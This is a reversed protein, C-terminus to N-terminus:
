IALEWVTIQIQTPVDGSQYIQMGISHEAPDILDTIVTEGDNGFVELLCTDMFIHLCVNGDNAPMHAEHIEAFGPFFEHKGSRTRDVILTQKQANYVVLTEEGPSVRLRLGFESHQTIQFKLLIERAPGPRLSSIIEELQALNYVGNALQEKRLNQLEATPRQRLQVQKGSKHLYVERPISCQGSWPTTPLQRAYAWNSAWAVWVRRKDPMDSWSQAAYFDKGYDVRIGERCTEICNFQQGDFFGLFCQAGIGHQVDIKLVWLRNDPENEVALEFLDPCEWIGGIDGAPGFNSLHTWNLLDKSGDFRVKFHDSLVTVMVWQESPAHWFVKPDRFDRLGLEVM